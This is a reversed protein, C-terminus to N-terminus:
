AMTRPARRSAYIKRNGLPDRLRLDGGRIHGKTVEVVRQYKSEKTAVRQVYRNGTVARTGASSYLNKRVVNKGLTKAVLLVHEGCCIGVCHSAKLQDDEALTGLYGANWKPCPRRAM